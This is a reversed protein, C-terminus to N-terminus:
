KRFMGALRMVLYVAAVSGLMLAVAWLFADDNDTFPLGKTNMGFVGTVLTPPLFLTTLITLFHIRQNTQEAVALTVDEQLLRARDRMEILVHDLADLHQALKGAALRLPPKIAPAGEREFRQFVARLGTLQRHLKVSTRRVHGLRQRLKPEIRVDLEDEIQDLDNGLRDTLREIGEVLHEVILELLSAVHSLRREGREIAERASEASTLAHHRASILLRETMAFRLHGIEDASGDVRRVLDAFVGYICDDTVHLQQHRDRSTLLARAAVPLDTSRMWNNARIDAVNVHLWLWGDAPAHISGRVDLPEASGDAHVAFAWILGPRSAHDAAAGSASELDIDISRDAIRGSPDTTM